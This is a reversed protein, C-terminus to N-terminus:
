SRSDHLCDSKRSSTEDVSKAVDVEKIWLMVQDLLKDFHLESTQNRPLESGEFKLILEKHMVLLIGRRVSRPFDHQRYQVIGVCWSAGRDKKYGYTYIQLLYLVLEDFGSEDFFIKWWLGCEDFVVKMLFWKWWFGSEDFFWKWWFVVKMLFGTEDFFWNWWFFFFNWRFVLKMLFGTEDSVLKMLFWKWWFGNEDFFWNWWFVLKMLFGIEDFVVKMLFWNWCFGTEVFVM